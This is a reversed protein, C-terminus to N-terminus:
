QWFIFKRKAPWISRLCGYLSHDAVIEAFTGGAVELTSIFIQFGVFFDGGGFAIVNLDTVSIGFDLGLLEDFSLVNPLCFVVFVQELKFSELIHICLDVMQSGSGAVM